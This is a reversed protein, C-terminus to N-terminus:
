ATELIHRATVRGAAVRPDFIVLDGGSTLHSKRLYCAVSLGAQGAGDIVVPVQTVDTMSYKM